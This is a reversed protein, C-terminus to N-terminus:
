QLLSRAAARDLVVVVNPHLRLLSAPVVTTVPGTLARRVISAKHRGFALLIVGRANMITGMGMSLAHTPVDRWQGGFTAANARRTDPRLRVRHTRPPLKEAPENFGVHGNRGIGVIALDLGGARAIQREYAAVEKKWDGAAGNLGHIRQRSVNVHDLLHRGLFARFSRPDSARLGLFEDLGFVTAQGFDARGSRHCDMLAGYLAIPTRGAPLALVLDPTVELLRAVFNAVAESAARAGDLVVVRM